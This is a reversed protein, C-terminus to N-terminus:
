RTTNVEKYMLKAIASEQTHNVVPKPYECNIGADYWNHIVKASFVRLEPIWKKIYECDPDYKKQQLWPNFIRFFPQADCGTSAAWQWNGNNVSPDYDILKQAFYQEGWRWNIHLDKVLFSAVVMRVRNHMWGTTNLQRMGADVIPFGTIGNKWLEFRENDVLWKISDYKKHFAGTFVHPFHFAIYTFFDRWYLEDIFSGPQKLYKKAAFYVERISVTGFKNHASLFSTGQVSPYNRKENYDQLHAINSLLKLGEKRGGRLLIYSSTNINIADLLDIPEESAVKKIRYNTYKNKVPVDVAFMKAKKLYQTFIKYAKGDQKVVMEPENLLADAYINCDVNYQNCIKKINTDRMSSFPTYDRNFFVANINEEKILMEVVTEAIGKFLYLRGGKKILENHLDRLSQIMFWVANDGRYPNNYLQREDMIFCPIVEISLELARILATNDELRLDRRFIYLSLNYKKAMYTNYIINIDRAVFLIYVFAM